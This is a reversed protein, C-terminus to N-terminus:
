PGLLAKIAAAVDDAASIIDAVVIADCTGFLSACEAPSGVEALCILTRQPPVARALQLTRALDLREDAAVCRLGILAHPPRLAAALDAASQVEVVSAM